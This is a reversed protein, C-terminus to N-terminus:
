VSNKNLRGNVIKDSYYSKVNNKIFPFLSVCSAFKEDLEDFSDAEESYIWKYLEIEPLKYSLITDLFKIKSDESFIFAINLFNVYHQQIDISIDEYVEEKELFIDLLKRCADYDNINYYYFLINFDTLYLESSEYFKFIEKEWDLMLMSIRQTYKSRIVGNVILSLAFRLKKDKEESLKILVEELLKELQTRNLRHIIEDSVKKTLEKLQEVNKDRIYMKLLIIIEIINFDNTKSLSDVKKLSDDIIEIPNKDTVEKKDEAVDIKRENNQKRLQNILKQKEEIKNEISSINNDFSKLISDKINRLEDVQKKIFDDNKHSKEDDLRKLNDEEFRISDELQQIRRNKDNILKQIKGILDLESM